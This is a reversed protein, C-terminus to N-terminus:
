ITWVGTPERGEIKQFAILAHRLSVDNAKAGPSVWYGLQNLLERAESIEQGSLTRARRRSKPAPSSQQDKSQRDPSRGGPQAVGANVVVLLAFAAALLCQRAIRISGRIQLQQIQNGM